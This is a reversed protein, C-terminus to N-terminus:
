NETAPRAQSGATAIDAAWPWHQALRHRLRRGSAALRGAVSFLRQRLM